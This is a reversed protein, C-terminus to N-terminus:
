NQSSTNSPKLQIRFCAITENHIYLVSSFLYLTRKDPPATLALLLENSFIRWFFLIYCTWLQEQFRKFNHREIQKTALVRHVNKIRNFSVCIVHNIDNVYSVHFLTFSWPFKFRLAFFGFLDILMFTECNFWRRTRDANKNIIKDHM